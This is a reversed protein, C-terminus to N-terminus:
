QASPKKKNPAIEFKIWEDSPVNLTTLINSIYNNIYLYEGRSWLLHESVGEEKPKTKM